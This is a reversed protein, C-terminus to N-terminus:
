RSKKFSMVVSLRGTSTHVYLQDGVARPASLIPEDGVKIRARFEGSEVNLLHIYGELDGVVLYDGWVAPPSPRRFKLKEQKWLSAGTGRHFAWISGEADVAVLADGAVALGTHVSLDRNWVIEGSTVNAAVLKGQFSAAYVLNDAIVLDADVDVLREIEHRGRPLSVARQWRPVGNRHDLAAIRGDAFGIIVLNDAVVPTATGRVTLAPVKYETRWQDHGDDAGISAVRGDTTQVVIGSGTMVPHSQIQSPLQSRWIEVGDAPNLAVLSDDAGIILMGNILAVGSSIQVDLQIRWKLEGNNVAYAAVAGRRDAIYVRESDSAPALKLRTQNTGVGLGREWKILLRVSNDVEDLPTPQNRPNASSCAAVLASLMLLVWFRM